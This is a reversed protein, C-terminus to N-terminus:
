AEDLKSRDPESFEAKLMIAIVNKASEAELLPETPQSRRHM